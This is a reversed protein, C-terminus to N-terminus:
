VVSKRDQNQYQGGQALGANDYQAIGPYHEVSQVGIQPDDADYAQDSRIDHDTM